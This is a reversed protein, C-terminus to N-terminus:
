CIQQVFTIVAVTFVYVSCHIPMITMMYIEMLTEM